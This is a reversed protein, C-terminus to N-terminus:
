LARSTGTARKPLSTLPRLFHSAWMALPEGPDNVLAIQINNEFLCGASHAQFQSNVGRILLWTSGIWWYGM